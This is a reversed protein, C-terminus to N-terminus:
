RRNIVVDANTVLDFDRPILEAINSTVAGEQCENTRQCAYVDPNCLVNLLKNMQWSARSNATGPAVLTRFHEHGGWVIDCLQTNTLPAAIGCFDM